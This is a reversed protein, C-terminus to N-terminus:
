QSKRMEIQKFLAALPAAASRLLKAFENRREGAHAIADELESGTLFRMLAQGAKNNIVKQISPYGQEAMARCTARDATGFHAAVASANFGAEVYIRLVEPSSWSKVRRRAGLAGADKGAFKAFDKLADEPSAYLAASALVFTESAVHTPSPLCNKELDSSRRQVLFKPFHDLLWKKPASSQILNHLTQSNVSTSLKFGLRDAQARMAAAAGAKGIPSKTNLLGECIGAYRRVFENSVISESRQSHTKIISRGGFYHAPEQSFAKATRISILEVDSHKVCHGIGRVLHHRRWYSIGFLDLDEEICAPCCQPYTASFKGAHNRLRDKNLDEGYPVNINDLAFARSLPTLTHMAVIESMPRECTQAVVDIVAMKRDVAEFRQHLKDMVGRKSKCDLVRRVTGMYGGVFEESKILPLTM